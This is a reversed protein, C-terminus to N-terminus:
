KEKIGDFIYPYRKGEVLLKWCDGYGKALEYNGLEYVSGVCGDGRYLDIRYIMGMELRYISKEIEKKSTM